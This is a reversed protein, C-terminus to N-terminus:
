ALTPVANPRARPTRPRPAPPPGPRTPPATGGLWLLRPGHVLAATPRRGNPRFFDVDVGNPIIDWDAHFYRSNADVVPESVAITAAHRDLIRQLPRRFVRCAVSRAFWSHFTAVVPIGAQWAALPAALGFTPALGGHVHVIDCRGERFVAELQRRLGNGTTVRSVGGNSYIMRSTGVRRVFAADPYPGMYSSIVTTVHGWSNFQLALNHVHEPVCGLQPYYDEAVLAIRM